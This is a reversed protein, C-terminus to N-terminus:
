PSILVGTFPPFDTKNTVQNRLNMKVSSKVRANQIRAPLQKHIWQRQMYM